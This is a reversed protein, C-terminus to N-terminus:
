HFDVTGACNINSTNFKPNKGVLVLQVGKTANSDTLMLPVTGNSAYVTREASVNRYQGGYFARVLLTCRDSYGATQWVSVNVQKNAAYTTSKTGTQCDVQGQWSPLSATWKTYAFTPVAACSVAFVGAGLLAIIKNVSKKM